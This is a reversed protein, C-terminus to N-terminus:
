NEPKGHRNVWNRAGDSGNITELGEGDRPVNTRAEDALVLQWNDDGSYEDPCREGPAFYGADARDRHKRHEVVRTAAARGGPRPPFRPRPSCATPAGQLRPRSVLQSNHRQRAHRHLRHLQARFQASSVSQGRRRWVRISASEDWAVSLSRSPSRCGPHYRRPGRCHVSTTSVRSSISGSAGRRAIEGMPWTGGDATIRSNDLLRFIRPFPRHSRSRGAAAGHLRPRDVVRLWRTEDCAVQLASQGM